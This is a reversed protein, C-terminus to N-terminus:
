SGSIIKLVEEETELIMPQLAKLQHQNLWNPFHNFSVQCLAIQIEENLMKSIDEEQIKRQELATVYKIKLEEIAKNVEATKEKKIIYGANTTPIPTGDPNKESAANLIAAREKEFKIYDPSFSSKAAEIIAKVVPEAQAINYNSAFSFRSNNLAEPHKETYTPIEKSLILHLELIKEKSLNLTTM